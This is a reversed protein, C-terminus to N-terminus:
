LGKTVGTVPNGKCFALLASLTEMDHNKSYMLLLIEIVM